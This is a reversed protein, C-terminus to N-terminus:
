QQPNTLGEAVRLVMESLETLMIKGDKDKDANEFIRDLEDESLPVGLGWVVHNIESRSLYGNGDKDAASFAAGLAQHINDRTGKILEVFLRLIEPFSLTESADLDVSACLSKFQTENINPHGLKRLLTLIEEHNLHEKGPAITSFAKKLNELMRDFFNESPCLPDANVTWSLGALLALTPGVPEVGETYGALAEAANGGRISGPDEAFVFDNMEDCTCVEVYYGDPDAFFLQVLLYGAEPILKKQYPIKLEDLRQQVKAIEFAEFSIHNVNGIPVNELRLDVHEGEILHLQLNGMWLWCGPVPFNPRNLVKCGLVDMYFKKSTEADSVVRSYHNVKRLLESLGREGEEGTSRIKLDDKLRQVDAQLRANREKLGQVEKQLEVVLETPTRQPGNAVAASATAVTVVRHGEATAERTSVAM